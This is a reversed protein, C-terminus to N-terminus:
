DCRFVRAKRQPLVTRCIVGAQGRACAESKEQLESERRIRTIASDHIGFRKALDSITPPDDSRLLQRIKERQADSLRRHKM